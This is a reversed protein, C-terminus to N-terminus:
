PATVPILIENRRFPPPTIPMNYRALQSVGSASLSTKSMWANLLATKEAIKEEGSFGSFRLAAVKQGKVERLKVAPNKPTPLTAMTYRSPMVFHMRWTDPATSDMTVPATM